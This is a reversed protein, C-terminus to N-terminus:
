PNLLTLQNGSKATVQMAGAMGVGGGAQDIYVFQGVLIWSADNVNVNVSAGHAPVTFPAATANFANVGQSGTPGQIGQPGQAGTAGASGTAGIAGTAGTPGQAGTAGAAGTPGQPGQPGSGTVTAGSAATSGQAQNTGYGLNQLTLQNAGTNVNTVSLYGLPPIYVVAGVAFASASAVNAVATAGSAPMTFTASLTTSASAGGPPGPPGQVGTSGTPGQVGQIGQGGQPGAPGQNGPPGKWPGLDVWTVGSWSWGHGTDLAQYFDGTTNGSPPLASSTAVTGKPVLPAGASGQPGVPGTAGTGGPPGPLSTTTVKGPPISTGPPVNYSTGFNQITMRDLATTSVVEYYGANEIVITMGPVFGQANAVVITVQGQVAPQIWTDLVNTFVYVFTIGDYNPDDMPRVGPQRPTVLYETM